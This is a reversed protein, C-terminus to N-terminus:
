KKSMKEFLKQKEMAGYKRGEEYFYELVEKRTINREEVANILKILGDGFFVDLMDLYFQEGYVNRSPDIRRVVYSSLPYFM